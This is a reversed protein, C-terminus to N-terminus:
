YIVINNHTLKGKKKKKKKVQRNDEINTPVVASTSASLPPTFGQHNFQLSQTTMNGLLKNHLTATPPPPPMSTNAVYLANNDAPPLQTMINEFLLMNNNDSSNNNATPPTLHSQTPSYYPNTPSPYGFDWGDAMDGMTTTYNAPNFEPNSSEPMSFANFIDNIQVADGTAQDSSFQPMIFQYNSLMVQQEQQGLVLENMECQAQREENKQKKPLVTNVSLKRATQLSLASFTKKKNSLVHQQFWLRWSLNELRSGNELSDKIRTCVRWTKSLEDESTLASFPSFTKNGKITLVLPAM